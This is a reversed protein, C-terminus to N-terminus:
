EVVNINGEMSRQINSSYNYSGLENFVREYVGGPAIESSTWNSGLIKHTRIDRNMWRVTTGRKVSYTTPAVGSADISVTAVDLPLFKDQAITTTLSRVSAPSYAEASTIPPAERYDLFFIEPLDDIQDQWNLGYLTEALSESYVHRLFGGRDVAYVRPDSPVKVLKKGPRYTINSAGLPIRALQQPPLVRVNDFNEYWSFYVKDNPFVYRRGDSGLYYVASQADSKIVDGSHVYVNDNAAQACAVGVVTLM